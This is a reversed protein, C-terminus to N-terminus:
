TEELETDVSTQPPDEELQALCWDLAQVAGNLAIIDAEYSRRQALLQDRTLTM